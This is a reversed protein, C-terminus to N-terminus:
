RRVRAGRVLQQRRDEDREDGSRWTRYRLTPVRRAWAIEFTTSATEQRQGLRLRSAPRVDPDGEPRDGLDRDPGAVGLRDELARAGVRSTASPGGVGGSRVDPRDVVDARRGGVAARDAASGGDSRTECADASQGGALHPAPRAAAEAPGAAALDRPDFRCARGSRRPDARATRRRGGSGRRGRHGSRGPRRRAAGPPLRSPRRRAFRSPALFLAPKVAAPIATRPVSSPATARVPQVARRLLLYQDTATVTM